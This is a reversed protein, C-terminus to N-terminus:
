TVQQPLTCPAQEMKAMRKAEMTGEATNRQRVHRVHTQDRCSGCDGTACDAKADAGLRALLVNSAAASCAGAGATPWGALMGARKSLKPVWYSSKPALGAARGWLRVPSTWLLM